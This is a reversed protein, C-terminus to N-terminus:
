SQKHVHNEYAWKATPTTYEENTLATMSMKVVRSILSHQDSSCIKAHFRALLMQARTRTDWVGSEIRLAAVNMRAYGAISRLVKGICEDAVSYFASSDAGGARSYGYTLRFAAM